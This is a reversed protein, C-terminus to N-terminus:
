KIEERFKDIMELSKDLLTISDKFYRKADEFYEDITASVARRILREGKAYVSILETFNAVGIEEIIAFRFNEVEPMISSIEEDINEAKESTLSESYKEVAKKLKIIQERFDGLTNNKNTETKLANKMGRRQLSIGIILVVISISFNTWDIPIFSAFIASFIVGIFILAIALKNLM